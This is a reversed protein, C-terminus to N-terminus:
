YGGYPMIQGSRTALLDEVYKDPRSISMAQEYPVGAHAKYAQDFDYGSTWTGSNVAAKVEPNRSLFGNEDWSEPTIRAPTMAQPTVPTPPASVGSHKGEDAGYLGLGSNSDRDQGTSNKAGREAMEAMSAAQEEPTQARGMAAGLGMALGMVPGGLLGMAPGLVGFAQGTPAGWRSAKLSPSVIEEGLRGFTGAKAYNQMAYENWNVGGARESIESEKSLDENASFFGGPGYGGGLGGGDNGGFGDSRDAQSSGDGGPGGISSESGGLSGHDGFGSVSDGTGGNSDSDSDDGGWFERMGTVPNYSPQKDGRRRELLDAEKTSIHALMTDGHRGYRELLDAWAKMDNM